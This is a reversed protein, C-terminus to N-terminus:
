NSHILYHQQSTSSRSIVHANPKCGRLRLTPYAFEGEVIIYTYVSVNINNVSFIKSLAALWVLEETTSQYPLVSSGVLIRPGDMALRLFCSGRAQATQEQCVRFFPSRYSLVEKSGKVYCAPAAGITSYLPEQVVFCWYQRVKVHYSAFM